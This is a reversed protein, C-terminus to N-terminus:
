SQSRATWAAGARRVDDSAVALAAAALAVFDEPLPATLAVPEHTNPHVFTLAAAHLLVRPATALSWGAARADRSYVADGVIPHGAEALHVRVQHTRGTVLRLLCLAVVPAGGMLPVACLATHAAKAPTQPDWPRGRLGDGRDRAIPTDIVGPAPAGHVVAVYRREVGGARLLRQLRQVTRADDATLLLGSTGKDLRHCLRGGAIQALEEATVGAPKHLARLRAQAWVVSV